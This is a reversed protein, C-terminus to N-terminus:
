GILTRLADFAVKPDAIGHYIAPIENRMGLFGYVGHMAGRM